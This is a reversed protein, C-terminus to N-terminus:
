VQREYGYRVLLPRTIISVREVDKRSMAGKWEEDQSLHILGTSFRMPNGAVTHDASLRVSGASLMEEPVAAPDVRAFSLVRKLTREPDEVLDEYRVVLLPTGLRGLLHFLANYANWRWASASSGYTPMFEEGAVVEPRRVQKAWSYAVGRSDRVVLVVKLNVSVKRLLFAYAPHKSSDVLLASGSVDRAASYLRSLYNVYRIRRLRQGTSHVDTTMLSLIRANRCVRQRLEALAAADLNEWGGMQQGVAAWFGCAHFREGCGCLEDGLLGREQLHIVEGLATVGEVQGLMRELLTSGSRGFGGLFLVDPREQSQARMLSSVEHILKDVGTPPVLDEAKVQFSAPHALGESLAAFLEDRTQAVRVMGLSGLHSSFTVQHDDVVEDYRRLRPVVIPLSGHSRSELMSMPGGQAVILSAEDMLRELDDHDVFDFAEGHRPRRSAGYQIVYRVEDGGRADIWEDMWDIIRDFRHHDSGVTVLVLPPGERRAEPKTASPNDGLVPGVNVSGPYLREQEPWQVMFTSSLHRCLRGTVTRSDIRDYVELYATPIRLGKAVLFFPLAVGAGNSFVLGPRNARLTRLALVGNRAFNVLNRTTPHHAWIVKEGVLLSLADRKEFTVWVRDWDRWWQRLAVVQALHGGTSAVLLVNGGDGPFLDGTGGTAKRTPRESRVRRYSRVM